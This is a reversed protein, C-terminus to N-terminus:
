LICKRVPNMISGIKCQYAESFGQSHKLVDNVIFGYAEIHKRSGSQITYLSLGSCVIKAFASFFMKKENLSDLNGTLRKKYAEFSLMLGSIGASLQEVIENQPIESNIQELLCCLQSGFPTSATPQCELPYQTQRRLEKNYLVASIIQSGLLWGFIGYKESMSHSESWFPSHLIWSFMVVRRHDITIIPYSLLSQLLDLLMSDESSSTKTRAKQSYYANIFYNNESLENELIIDPEKNVKDLFASDVLLASINSVTSIAKQKDDESSWSRQSLLETLKHKMENFMQNVKDQPIESNIQELLCCLQSEFPTSANKKCELIYETQSQLGQDNLVASIIQRGLIWGFIGYKESMSHSESGFLSHLIWSFMVVRRHDITIIPYSLLSQLLDWLMSGAFKSRTKTRTKQSYYANIFYNNESLENELIIEQEKNVEDLFASDVMIVSTESVTSIAKQKDDESSWSRQSLLETLKHKMENFMQNVM